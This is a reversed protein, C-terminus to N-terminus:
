HCWLDAAALVCMVAATLWPGVCWHKHLVFEGHADMHTYIVMSSLVRIPGMRVSLACMEATWGYRGMAVCVAWCHLMYQGVHGRYCGRGQGSGGKSDGCACVGQWGWMCAM